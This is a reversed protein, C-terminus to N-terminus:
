SFKPSKPPLLKSMWMEFCVAAGRVNGSGIRSDFFDQFCRWKIFPM